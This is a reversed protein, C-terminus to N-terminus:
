RRVGLIHLPRIRHYEYTSLPRNDSDYTHAAILVTDPTVPYGVEVVVPSHHFYPHGIALQVIDGPQVEELPTVAAYPGIGKNGVLFTYLFNVGSWSASRNNANYYFWGLQGPQMVQSGAYLCQSAFNTCDGGIPDFNYYRPNRSYAWQHAYAVAAARDYSAQILIPAM